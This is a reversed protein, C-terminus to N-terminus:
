KNKGKKKMDGLINSIDTASFFGIVAGLVLFLPWGAIAGFPLGVIGTGSGFILGALGGIAAGIVRKRLSKFLGSKM